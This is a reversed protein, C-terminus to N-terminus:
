PEIKIITDLNMDIFEQEFVLSIFGEQDENILTTTDSILNAINLNSHAIPFIMDTDWNPRELEHKCSFIFLIGLIFFLSKKM